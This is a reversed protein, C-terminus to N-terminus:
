PMSQMYPSKGSFNCKLDIWALNIIELIKEAELSTINDSNWSNMDTKGEELILANDFHRYTCWQRQYCARFASFLCM